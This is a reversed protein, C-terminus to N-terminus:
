KIKKHSKLELIFRKCSNQGSELGRWKIYLMYRGGVKRLNLFSEVDYTGTNFIFNRHIDQTVKFTAGAYFKMRSSRVEINKDIPSKVTYVKHGVISTVVFLGVLRLRILIKDRLM